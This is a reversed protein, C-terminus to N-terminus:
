GWKGVVAIFNGRSPYFPCLVLLLFQHSSPEDIFYGIVELSLMARVAVDRRRLSQVHVASGM